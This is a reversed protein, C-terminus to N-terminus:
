LSWDAVACLAIDPNKQRRTPLLKKGVPTLTTAAISTRPELGRLAPHQPALLLGHAATAPPPSEAALPLPPTCPSMSGTSSSSATSDGVPLEGKITRQTNLVQIEWM